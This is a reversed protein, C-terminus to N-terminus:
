PHPPPSVPPGTPHSGPSAVPLSAPPGAPVDTPRAKPHNEPPGTPHTKSQGAPTESSQSEASATPHTRSQGASIASPLSTPHNESVATSPHNPSGATASHVTREEAGKQKAVASVCQGVGHEGEALQDRCNSVAASVTQGWVAPNPSGTAAFAVAAGASALLTATVLGAATKLMTPTISTSSRKDEAFFASYYGAQDFEPTPGLRRGSRRHLEQDLLQDLDDGRIKETRM